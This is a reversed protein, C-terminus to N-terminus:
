HMHLLGTCKTCESVSTRLYIKFCRSIELKTFLLVLNARSLALAITVEATCPYLKKKPGICRFIIAISYVNIGRMWSPLLITPSVYRQTSIRLVFLRADTYRLREEDQQSRPVTARFCLVDPIIRYRYSSVYCNIFGTEAESGLISRACSHFVPMVFLVHKRDRTSLQVSRASRQVSGTFRM